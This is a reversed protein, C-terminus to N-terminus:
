YTFCLLIRLYKIKAGILHEDFYVGRQVFVPSNEEFIIDVIVEYEAEVSEQLAPLVLARGTAIIHEHFNQFHAVAEERLLPTSIMDKLNEFRADNEAMYQSFRNELNIYSEKDETIQARLLKTSQIFKKTVDPDMFNVCGKKMPGFVQALPDHDVDLYKSQLNKIIIDKVAIVKEEVFVTPFTGDSRTHGVLFSDSRTITPDVEMCITEWVTDKLKLPVALWSPYYPPIHERVLNGFRYLIQNLEKWCCTRAVFIEVTDKNKFFGKERLIARFLSYFTISSGRGLTDFHEHSGGVHIPSPIHSQEIPNLSSSMSQSLPLM